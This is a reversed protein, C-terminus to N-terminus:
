PFAFEPGTRFFSVNNTFISNPLLRIMRSTPSEIAAINDIFWDNWGDEPGLYKRLLRHFLPVDNPEVTATGRLGCHLLIGASNDFDVIEVACRGDRGLRRVSSSGEHGLMWLVGGEWLYWVPANCPAGDAALTALNAMQPRDLLIQPDFPTKM